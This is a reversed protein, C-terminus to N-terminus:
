SPRLRAMTLYPACSGGYARELDHWHSRILRLLEAERGPPDSRIAIVCDSLCTTALEALVTKSIDPRGVRPLLVVPGEAIRSGVSIWRQPTCAGGRLDASHLVPVGDSVDSTRHMPTCGRMILAGYPKLAVLPASRDAALGRTLLSRGRVRLLIVGVSCGAFAKCRIEGVQDVAYRAQLAQFLHADRESTACSAPLIALLEGGPKLYRLARAVFALAKSGLHPQQDIVVPYRKNGRCTFPPNLLIVDCRGELEKLSSKSEGDDLFDFTKFEIRAALDGASGSAEPRIDSGFLKARPWRSAAVRLLAGDGMAFDAILKARRGRAAGVLLAALGPPTYYQDMMRSPTSGADLVGFHRLGLLTRSRAYSGEQAKTLGASRLSSRASRM